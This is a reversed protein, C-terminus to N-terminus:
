GIKSIPLVDAFLKDRDAYHISTGDASYQTQGEAGIQNYDYLAIARITSYYNEMDEEIVFDQYSSPYKRASKVERYATTVKSQLLTANFKKGEAMNLEETLDEIVDDILSM